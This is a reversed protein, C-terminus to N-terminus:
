EVFDKWVPRDSFKKVEKLPCNKSVTKNGVDYQVYSNDPDLSIPCVDSHDVPCSFCNLEEEMIVTITLIKKEVKNENRYEYIRVM